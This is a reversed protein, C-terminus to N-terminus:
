KGTSPSPKRKATIGKDWFAIEYILYKGNYPFLVIEALIGGEPFKFVQGVGMGEQLRMQGEPEKKKLLEARVSRKKGILAEVFTKGPKAMFDSYRKNITLVEGDMYIEADPRMLEMIGKVDRALVAKNFQEWEKFDVEADNMFEKTIGMRISYLRGDGDIEVSYNPDYILMTKSTDPVKKERDPKGLAKITKKRSDGLKLGKFPLMKTPYGTLQMSIINNPYEDWVEFAMYSDDTLEYLEYRSDGQKVSEYPKGFFGRPIDKFQWLRFGNLDIAYDAAFAACPVFLLFLIFILQFFKSM